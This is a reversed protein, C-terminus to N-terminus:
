VKTNYDLVSRCYYLTKRPPFLFVPPCGGIFIECSFRRRFGSAFSFDAQFRSKGALVQGIEVMKAM